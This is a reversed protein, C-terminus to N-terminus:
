FKVSTYNNTEDCERVLQYPDIHLILSGHFSTKKKLSIVKQSQYAENPLLLGNINTPPSQLFFGDVLLDGRNYKEDGSFFVQVGVNDKKASKAGELLVPHNGKNKITYEIIMEKKSKELVKVSTIVLDACSDEVIVATEFDFFRKEEPAPIIIATNRQCNAFFIAFFLLTSYITKQYFM